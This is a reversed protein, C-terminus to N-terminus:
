TQEKRDGSGRAWAANSLLNVPHSVSSFRFRQRGFSSRDYAFNDCVVPPESTM